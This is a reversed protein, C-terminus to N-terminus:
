DFRGMAMVNPDGSGGYKVIDEPSLTPEIDRFGFKAYLDHGDASATLWLDSLGLEEAEALGHKIMASGIGKGRYEELTALVQLFAYRKGSMYKQRLATFKGIIDNCAAGNATAPWDIDVWDKIPEVETYFNWEAWAVIKEKGDEEVVAKYNRMTPDKQLKDALGKARFRHNEENPPGFMIRSVNAEIPTKSVTDNSISEVRALALFDDETAPLIKFAISTPSEM